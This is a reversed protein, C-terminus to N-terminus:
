LFYGFDKSLYERRWEQEGISGRKETDERWEYEQSRERQRDEGKEERTADEEKIDNGRIKNCLM